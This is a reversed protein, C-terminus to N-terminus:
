KNVMRAQNIVRDNSRQCRAKVVKGSHRHVLRVWEHRVYRFTVFEGDVGLQAFVEVTQGCEPCYAKPPDYTRTM